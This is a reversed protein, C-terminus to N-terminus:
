FIEELTSNPSVGLKQAVFEAYKVPHNNDSSPAYVKFFDVLNMDPHYYKSRGDVSIQLQFILAKWGDDYSKFISFNGSDQGIQYKSYRINGPNNNRYSRSGVFWGEYTKIAEAWQELTLKKKKTEASELTKTLEGIKEQLMKIINLLAKLLYLALIPQAAIADWYPSLVKLNRERNGDAAFVDFEKDYQDMTDETAIGVRRARFHWVHYIEHSLVRFIDGDNDWRKATAVEVFETGPVIQNYFTWHGISKGSSLFGTEEINYLFLVVHYLYDPVINMDRIKDKTGKTGWMDVEKGNLIKRVGFNEFEINLDSTEYSFEVEYPTRDEIYKKFKELDDKYEVKLHNTVVLIKFKM